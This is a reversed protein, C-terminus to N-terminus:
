KKIFMTAWVVQGRASIRANFLGSFGRVTYMLMADALAVVVEKSVVGQMSYLELCLNGERFVVRQKNFQDSSTLMANVSLMAWFYALIGFSRSRPISSVFTVYQVLWGGPLHQSRITRGREALSPQRRRSISPTSLISYAISPSSSLLLEPKNVIEFKTMADNTIISRFAPTAHSSPSTMLFLALLTLSGLDNFKM